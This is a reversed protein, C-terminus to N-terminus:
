GAAHLGSPDGRERMISGKPILQELLRLAADLPERAPTAPFTIRWEIWWGGWPFLILHSEQQEAWFLFPRRIRFAAHRASM